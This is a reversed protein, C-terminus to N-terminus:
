TGSLPGLKSELVGLTSVAMDRMDDWREEMFALYLRKKHRRLAWREEMSLPEKWEPQTTYRVAKMWTEYASWFEDPFRPLRDEVKPLKPFEAHPEIQYWFATSSYDNEYDNAHGHEVTVRISKQFRVPDQVHFRFMSQKGSYDLNSVFHFGTYPGFYAYNPGAGGGFIEESGTGHYTPPFGEGDIFIMDDGEGYWGGQINDVNLFFGVYNGQGEAELIVYNDDGTLNIRNSVEHPIAKCPNERRWQAHFRGASAPVQDLEEYEVHYWFGGFALDSQNELEIRASEAFPMPFYINFGYSGNGVAGPNLTIMLSQFPQPQCHGAGFLDGLPVEVSPTEEGDWFMRIVLKRYQLPDRDITTFYIHRIVAPGKLEAMVMTEGPSPNICDHNAGTRDWSSVRATKRGSVMVMGSFMDGGPLMTEAPM